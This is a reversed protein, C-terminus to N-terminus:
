GTVRRVIREVSVVLRYVAESLMVSLTLPSAQVQTEMRTM